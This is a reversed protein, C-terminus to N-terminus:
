PLTVIKPYDKGNVTHFMVEVTMGSVWNSDNPLTITGTTAQGPSVTLQSFSYSPQPNYATILRGNLLTQSLALTADLNGTNKLCVQITIGDSSVDTYATTFELKEYLTLGQNLDSLQSTPTPTYNIRNNQQQQLQSQLGIIQNQLEIIQSDKVALQSSVSNFSNLVYFAGAGLLVGIVVGVVLFKSNSM